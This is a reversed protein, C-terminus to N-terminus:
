GLLQRAVEKGLVRLADVDIHVGDRESSGIILGADLFGAGHRAAVAQFAHALRRSERLGAEDWAGGALALDNLPPPAVVLIRPSGGTRDVVQRDAMTVLTDLGAAIVEATAGFVSKTDNTGLMLVVTDIPAHSWLCPLLFASGDRGPLAPDEFVTTRGGLGEALVTFSPGLADALVSTWREARPQRGGTATDTGWTNSDGYCVVVRPEIANPDSM